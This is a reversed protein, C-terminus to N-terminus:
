VGLVDLVVCSSFAATCARRAQLVGRASDGRSGLQVHM